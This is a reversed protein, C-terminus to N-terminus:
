DVVVSANYSYILFDYSQSGFTLVRGDAKDANGAVALGAGADVAGRVGADLLDDLVALDVDELGDLRDSSVARLKDL